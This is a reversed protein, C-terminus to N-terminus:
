NTFFGLNQIIQKNMAFIEGGRIPIIDDESAHIKTKEFCGTFYYGLVFAVIPIIYIMADFEILDLM